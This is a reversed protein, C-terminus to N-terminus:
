IPAWKKIRRVWDSDLALCEGNHRIRRRGPLWACLNETVQSLNMPTNAPRSDVVPPNSAVGVAGTPHHEGFFLFFFDGVVTFQEGFSCVCFVIIGPTSWM